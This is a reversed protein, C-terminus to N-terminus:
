RKDRKAKAVTSPWRGPRNCRTVKMPKDEVWLILLGERHGSPRKRPSLDRDIAKRPRWGRSM